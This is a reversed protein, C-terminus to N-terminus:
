KSKRGQINWTKSGVKLVYVKIAFETNQFNKLSENKSKKVNSLFLNFLGFTKFAVLEFPIGWTVMVNDKREEEYGRPRKNGEGHLLGEM